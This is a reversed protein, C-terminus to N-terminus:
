PSVARHVCWRQRAHPIPQGCRRDARDVRAGAGRGKDPTVALADRRVRAGPRLVCMAGNVFRRNDAGSRGPAGPKGPLGAAIISWQLDSLAYRKVM